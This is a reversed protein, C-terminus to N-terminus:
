IHILSLKLDSPLGVMVQDLRVENQWSRDHGHDGMSFLDKYILWFHLYQGSVKLIHGYPYSSIM